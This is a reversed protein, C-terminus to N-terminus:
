DLEVMATEQGRLAWHRPINMKPGFNTFPHLGQDAVQLVKPTESEEGRKLRGMQTTPM